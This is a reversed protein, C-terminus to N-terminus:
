DWPKLMVGYPRLGINAGSLFRWANKIEASSPPSDCAEHQRQKVRSPVTKNHVM